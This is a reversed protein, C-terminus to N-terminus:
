RTQGMLAGTLIGPQRLSGIPESFDETESQPDEGRNLCRLRDSGDEFVEAQRGSGRRDRGVTPGLLIGPSLVERFLGFDSLHADDQVGGNM